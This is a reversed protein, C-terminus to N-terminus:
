YMIELLSDSNLIEEENKLDAIRRIVDKTSVIGVLKGDELIPVRRFCHAMFCAAIDSLRDDPGFSIVDTTMYDSVSGPTEEPDCLLRLANKETVIGALSGDEHLVPLGTINNLVMIRIAEYIDEGEPVTIVHPNMIAKATLM